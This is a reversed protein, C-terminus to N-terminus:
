GTIVDGNYDVLTNFESDTLISDVDFSSAQLKSRIAPSLDVEEISDNKIDISKIEENQIDSSKVQTRTM